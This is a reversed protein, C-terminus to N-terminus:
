DAQAAKKLEAVEAQLAGITEHQQLTYLTLEEVKELLRMQFENVNIARTAKVEADSPVNPLHKNEDIFAALDDLSMLPYDPEFVYDPTYGGLIILNGNNDLRLEPGSAGTGFNIRMENGILNFDVFQGTTTNRERFFIDGPADLQLGVGAVDTVVHLPAEPSGTGVGVDGDASIDLSSTPAGPRIRFSLRSGSTVDRVFFNAENGAIDWTQATFGGSNNQELRIGPTNSTNIHLDLVPTSTRFGVRSTSDVYVSNAVAGAEVTVPLRAGTIDEISFKNVGGSASDNAVLQWDNSPFTGVSTDMFLIRTNNEKLRITDFGFPENVVCDLGVCLSGQVILDDPIVQDAAHVSTVADTVVGPGAADGAVASPEDLDSRVFAGEHVRFAGSVVLPEAPLKGARQLEAVISDDGTERARALAARVDDSVVPAARLEWKYAGDALPYGARDYIDLSPMTARDFERTFVGDPGSVTLTMREYAVAPQWVLATAGASLSAIEPVGAAFAPLTALAVIAAALAARRRIASPTQRAERM